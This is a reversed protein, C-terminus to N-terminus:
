RPPGAVSEEGGRRDPSTVVTLGEDSRGIEVPMHPFPLMM